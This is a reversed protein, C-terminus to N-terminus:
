IQKQKKRLIEMQQKCPGHIRVSDAKEMLATLTNHRQITKFKRESLELKGAMDPESAQKKKELQAKQRKTHRTM